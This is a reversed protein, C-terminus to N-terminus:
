LSAGSSVPAMLSTQEGSHRCRTEEKLRSWSPPWCDRAYRRGTQSGLPLVNNEKGEPLARTSRPCSAGRGKAVVGGGGRAELDSVGLQETKHKTTVRM